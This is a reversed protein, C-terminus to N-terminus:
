SVIENDPDKAYMYTSIPISGKYRGDECKEIKLGNDAAYKLETDLPPMPSPNFSIAVGPTIGMRELARSAEKILQEADQKDIRGASKNNKIENARKIDQM